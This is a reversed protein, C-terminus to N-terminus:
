KILKLMLDDLRTKHLTIKNKYSESFVKAEELNKANGVQIVGIMGMVGHNACEYIYAGEDKFTVKIEENVKGAWTAAGKPTFVSRSTHGIDKPIFRVEDGVEIKLFSPSFTMSESGSKNLMHIEYSKSYSNFSFILVVLSFIKLMRNGEIFLGSDVFFYITSL